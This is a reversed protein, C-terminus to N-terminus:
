QLETKDSNARKLNHKGTAQNFHAKSYDVLRPNGGRIKCHDQAASSLALHVLRQEQLINKGAVFICGGLLPLTFYELM